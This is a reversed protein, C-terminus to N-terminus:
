GVRRALRGVFGTPIPISGLRVEVKELGAAEVRYDVSFLRVLLMLAILGVGAGVCSTPAWGFPVYAGSKAPGRDSGPLWRDPDFREADPWIEPDHHVVYSSLLFRDGVSLQEADFRYDVRSERSVVLPSSWRRLCEKVFRHSVPATAVPDAYFDEIPIALLEDRLRVAWQPRSLLELLMCVAVAGPPGAVATLVSTVAHAARDTGLDPLLDVIPDTLDLRRSRRGAARDKLVRGAVRGAQFQIWSSRPLSPVSAPDLLGEIKLRQDAEVKRLEGDKLDSLVLPILAQSFIAQLTKPLDSAEDSLRRDILGRLRQDLAAVPAADTLRKATPAWASRVEKWSVEASKRGRLLDVLRDPLATDVFNAANVKMAAFPCLVAAGQETQVVAGQDRAQALRDVAGKQISFSM